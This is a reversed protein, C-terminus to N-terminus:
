KVKQVKNRFETPTQGTHKKFFKGFTSQDAFHLEESIKQINVSPKQLLIKSEIVLTDSIWTIATKGSIKKLIRSLNGSTMCLKEAYFSVEHEEKCNDFVLRIFSQVVEEKYDISGYVIEKNQIQKLNINAMELLFNSVENKLIHNQFAHGSVKMVKIMRIIMEILTNTQSESLKMLPFSRELRISMKEIMHVDGMISQALKPSIAVMYGEFHNSMSVNNLIHIRNLQLLMNSHLHYDKHDVYFSIEGHTCIFFTVADLRITPMNEIRQCNDRRNDLDSVILEDGFVESSTIEKATRDFDINIIEKM